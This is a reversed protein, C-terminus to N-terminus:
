FSWVLRVGRLGADTGVRLAGPAVMAGSRHADPHQPSLIIYFGAGLAAVGVIRSVTSVAEATKMSGIADFGTQNCLKPGCNDDAIQKEAFARLGFYSGV